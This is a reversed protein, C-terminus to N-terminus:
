RRWKNRREVPTVEQPHEGSALGNVGAAIIGAAVSPSTEQAPSIATRQGAVFREVAGAPSRSNTKDANGIKDPTTKAPIVIKAGAEIGDGSV